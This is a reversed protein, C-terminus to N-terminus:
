PLGENRDDPLRLPSAALITGGIVIVLPHSEAVPLRVAHLREWIKIREQPDTYPSAQLELERRRAHEREQDARLVAVRHDSAAFGFQPSLSAEPKTTM